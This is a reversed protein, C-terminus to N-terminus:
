GAGVPKNGTELKFTEAIGNKGAVSLTIKLEPKDRLKTLQSQMREFMKVNSLRASSGFVIESVRLDAATRAVAHFFNSAPVVLLDAHKGYKEAIAVVKTFLLQENENFLYNRHIDSEGVDHGKLNKVKLVILDKKNTDTTRLAYDLQALNHYDRVM